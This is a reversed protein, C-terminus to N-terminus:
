ISYLEPKLTYFHAHVLEAVRLPGNCCNTVIFVTSSGDGVFQGGSKM